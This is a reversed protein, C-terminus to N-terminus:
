STMIILNLNQLLGWPSIPLPLYGPKKWEGDFGPFRIKGTLLQQMLAKKQAKSNEILKETTEIAKDWISLIQAIKTQEVLPPVLLLLSKFTNANLVGMTGGQARRYLLRQTRNNELYYKMFLPMAKSRDLSIRILRPNIVCENANDPILLVKGVTGVLSILIDGPLVSCTKLESFKEENIFYDGFFADNRIVQEQGYIKYGDQVYFEKKLSSGFPGAKVAPRYKTGM